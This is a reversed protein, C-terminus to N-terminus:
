IIIYENERGRTLATYSWRYYYPTNRNYNTRFDIFVEAWEGGQAKHCTVAYGYKIRLCNFYPDHEIAERFEASNTKLDPNRQKFEVYLAQLEEQTLNPMASNLLNMLMKCRIDQSLGNETEFRIVVDRFNLEIELFKENKWIGVKRSETDPEVKVITGFEGNLLEIEHSYNNQIVIVRDGSRLDQGIGWLSERVAHNYNLVAYNTHAIIITSFDHLNTTLSLYQSSVKKNSLSLIDRYNPTIHLHSFKRQEISERITTALSLIGSDQSQRVVECMEFESIKLRFPLSELYNKDLAPSTDMNVPPLQAPDGIFIIKRRNYQGVYTLFDNLLFGSGFRLFGDNAYLNSIMSSEDIMYLTNGPDANHRLSYFYKVWENGATDKDRYERLDERSYISKHITHAPCGTKETIIKAARGTPTMCAFPIKQESFYKSLVKLLTTKGTGAFGKLLFINDASKLFNIIEIIAETQTDNLEYEFYKRIEAPLCKKNNIHLENKMRKLM